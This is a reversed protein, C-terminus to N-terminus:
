RRSLLAFAVITELHAADADLLELLPLERTAVDIAVRAANVEEPTAGVYCLTCPPLDEGELRVAPGYTRCSVPRADYLDCCGTAPDLAPCPVRSHRECFETEREEDADLCGTEPDGPFHARMIRVSAEARARVAAARRPDRSELAGLGERLRWADLGTIPFPGICCPTCGPRCALARGSRTRVQSAAADLFRLLRADGRRIVLQEAATLPRPM